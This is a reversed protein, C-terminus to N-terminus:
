PGPPRTVDVDVRKGPAGPTKDGEVRVKTGGADVKVDTTKESPKESPRETRNQQCGVTPLMLLSALIATTFWKTLRVM